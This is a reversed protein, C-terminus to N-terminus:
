TKEEQKNVGRGECRHGRECAECVPRACTECEWEQYCFEGCAKCYPISDEYGDFKNEHILELVRAKPVVPDSTCTLHEEAHYECGCALCSFRSDWHFELPSWCHYCSSISSERMYVDKLWSLEESTFDKGKCIDDLTKPNTAM